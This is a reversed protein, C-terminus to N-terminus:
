ICGHERLLSVLRRVTAPRLDGSGVAAGTVLLEDFRMGPRVSVYARSRRLALVFHWRRSPISIVDGSRAVWPRRGAVWVWLTGDSIDFGETPFHRHPLGGPAGFLRFEVEFEVREGASEASTVRYTTTEGSVLNRARQGPRVGTVQPSTRSDIRHTTSMTCRHDTLPKASTFLGSAERKGRPDGALWRRQM